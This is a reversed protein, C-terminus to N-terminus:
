ADMSEMTKAGLELVTQLQEPYLNLDELMPHSLPDGSEEVSLYNDTCAVALSLLKTLLDADEYQRQNRVAYALREPLKWALILDGGVDPYLLEVSSTVDERSFKQKSANQYDVITQLLVPRGIDHLLGTLFADEVSLRLTRAIEQAFASTALSKRFSHRVEEEYGAVDFVRAKCSIILVIQRLQKLGIRAAAQQLSTFPAGASYTASNAMRLVQSAISQDSRICDAIEKAPCNPDSSISMLRSAAEPLVPLELSGDKLLRNIVAAATESQTGMESM